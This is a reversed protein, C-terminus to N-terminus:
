CNAAHLDHESGYRCLRRIRCDGCQPRLAKCVQRGHRILNVHLPYTREPAISAEVLDQVAAPSMKPGAFGIRLSLRHVHTDVPFAPKGLNFLLVCSATKAGVGHLGTLIARAEPVQVDALWDLDLRGFRQQLTALAELIRLAKLQALGGSRITDALQDHPAQLVAEWTPFSGRLSFYARDSNIDSTNQSLITAVLGGLPDGDPEWPPDGYVDALADDVAQIHRAPQALLRALSGGGLGGEGVSCM